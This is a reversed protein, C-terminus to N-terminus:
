QSGTFNQTFTAFDALDVDDDDDWDADVGNPCSPPPPNLPGGYCQAFMSFDGLDIDCDNDLDGHVDSLSGGTNVLTNYYVPALTRLEAGAHLILTDVYLAECTGTGDEQNDIADVVTVTRHDAIELTGFSFNDVFDNPDDNGRDEGAAEIRQPAVGDMTLPGAWDFMEPLISHNIFDGALTFTVSPDVRIDVSEGLIVDGDVDATVNDSLHM